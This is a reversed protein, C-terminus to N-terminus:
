LKVVLGEYAVTCQLRRDQTQIWSRAMDQITDLEDDTRDPDHHYLILHKVQAAVALRCAQSVLSHGWGHKHPMDAELYQADHILVDARRCFRVFGEFDTAVAYPPALENDTLYVVSRGACEVRYGAGGGPHNTAIQSLCFGQDALFEMGGATLCRTRSPLRDATIPFHAGDMQELAECLRSKGVPSPFLYITRDPQYLPSFFPFGQIHDWHIHTLLLFITDPRVELAKGLARIGTGADLVLTKEEGADISVCSTNGGYRATTRGPSPISGRVGWFRITMASQRLM